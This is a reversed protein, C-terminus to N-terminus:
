TDNKKDEGKTEFDNEVEEERHVDVLIDTLVIEKDSHNWSSWIEM